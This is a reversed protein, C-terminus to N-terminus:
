ADTVKNREEPRDWHGHEPESRDEETTLSPVLTM